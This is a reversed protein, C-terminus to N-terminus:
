PTVDGAGTFREADVRRGVFRRSYECSLQNNTGCDAGACSSRLTMTGEVTQGIDDFTYTAATVITGDTGHETREVTFVYKGDDNEKGEIADVDLDVDPAHAMNARITNDGIDLYKVGDIGDWLVWEEESVTNTQTDPTDTPAAGSRYCTTPLPSPAVSLAVRYLEPDSNGLINCGSLGGLAFAAVAWKFSRM